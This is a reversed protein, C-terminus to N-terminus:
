EYDKEKGDNLEYFYYQRIQELMKEMAKSPDIDNGYWCGNKELKEAAELADIDGGDLEDVLAATEGGDDYSTACLFGHGGLQGYRCYNISIEAGSLWEFFEAETRTGM